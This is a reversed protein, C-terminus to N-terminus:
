QPKKSKMVHRIMVLRIMTKGTVGVMSGGDKLDKKGDYSKNGRLSAVSKDSSTFKPLNESM